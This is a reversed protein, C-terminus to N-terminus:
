ATKLFSWCTGVECSGLSISTVERKLSSYGYMSFRYPERDLARLLTSASSSSSSESESSDATSHIRHTSLTIQTKGSLRIYEHCPIASTTINAKMANGGEAVHAHLPLRGVTSNLSFDTGVTKCRQKTKTNHRQAVM